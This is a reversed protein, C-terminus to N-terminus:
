GNNKNGFIKPFGYAKPLLPDYNYCKMNLSINKELGNRLLIMYNEKSPHRHIKKLKLVYTNTDGLSEEM